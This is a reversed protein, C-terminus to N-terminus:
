WHFYLSIALGESIHEKAIFQVCCVGMPSITHLGVLNNIHLVDWAPDIEDSIPHAALIFYAGMCLSVFTGPHYYQIADHIWQLFSLPIDLKVIYFKWVIHM